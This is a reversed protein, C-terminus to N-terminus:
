NRGIYLESLSVAVNGRYESRPLRFFDDRLTRRNSSRQVSKMIEERSSIIRRTHNQCGNRVYLASRTRYCSLTQVRLRHM